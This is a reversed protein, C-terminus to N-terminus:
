LALVMSFFIRSCHPLRDPAARACRHSVRLSRSCAIITCDVGASTVARVAMTTLREATKEPSSAAPASTCCASPMAAEPLLRFMATSSSVAMASSVSCSSRLLRWGITRINTPRTCSTNAMTSATSAPRSSLRWAPAAHLHRDAHSLSSTVPAPPRRSDSPSIYLWCAASSELRSAAMPSAPSSPSISAALSTSSSTILEPWAAACGSVSRAAIRM